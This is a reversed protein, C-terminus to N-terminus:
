TWVKAIRERDFLTFDKGLRWLEVGDHLNSYIARGVNESVERGLEWNNEIAIQELQSAYMTDDLRVIWNLLHDENALFDKKAGNCNRHAVVFNSLADNQYRAWPIFHDVEPTKGEAKSVSKDCYFCRGNQLETLQQNIKTTSLRNASFLFAQLKAEELKNAEAVRSAWQRQILPRLLTNLQIFYDGVHKKLYILNNFDSNEKRQYSGVQSKKIDKNWNISYIFPSESRGIFQLRPLPMEILKWEVKDLLKKFGEKDKIKASFYPAFAGVNSNARFKAIDQIIEAQAENRGTNQLLVKETANVQYPNTHLWYLQIVKEALQRTTLTEPAVGMKTFHEMSLDMMALLVAFKYTSTFKGQDLLTLIREAFSIVKHSDTIM